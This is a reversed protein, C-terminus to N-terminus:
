ELVYSLRVTIRATKEKSRTDFNGGYSDEENSGKGTIQFVGMSADKLKGLHGDGTKVIKQAREKADQTAKEILNHKLSPLDSYTYQIDQGNFEIGSNILESTQDSVNEIKLMLAENKKGSFSISQTALYGDFVQESKTEGDKSDTTVTRFSKEINAGGFTFETEKFGKSLFFQKVKERDALITSYAEKADMSKTSFSGKWFIEDSIFDKTGLGIVNIVDQNANRNKIGKGLIFATIMIAIGWIAAYLLSRNKEM